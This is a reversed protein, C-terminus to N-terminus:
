CKAIILGVYLAYYLDGAALGLMVVGLGVVDPREGSNNRDFQLEVVGVLETRRRM